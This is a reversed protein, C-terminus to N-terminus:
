ANTGGSNAILHIAATSAVFCNEMAHNSTMYTEMDPGHRSSYHSLKAPKPGWSILPTTSDYDSSSFTSQSPNGALWDYLIIPLSSPTRVEESSEWARPRRIM